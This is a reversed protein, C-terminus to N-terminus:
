DLLEFVEVHRPGCLWPQLAESAAQVEAQLAASVGAEVFVPLKFANVDLPPQGNPLGLLARMKQNLGTIQGNSDITFIGFPASDGLLRDRQEIRALATELERCRAQLVRVEGQRAKDDISIEPESTM